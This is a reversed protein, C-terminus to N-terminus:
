PRRGEARGSATDIVAFFLPDTSGAAKDLWPEFAVFDAPPEDFLYRFRVEAGPEQASALLDRGHRAPDLPELRAYRGDLSVRGPRPVGNWNALDM